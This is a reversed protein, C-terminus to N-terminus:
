EIYYQKPAEGKAEIVVPRLLLHTEYDIKVLEINFLWRDGFDFLYKMREGQFLKLDSIRVDEAFPGDHYLSDKCYIIEGINIERGFYFVYLHDNDFDFAEQIALHLDSLRHDYYISIKRWIKNSLSVKFTYTGKRDIKEFFNVTNKVLGEKFIGKFIEFTEGKTNLIYKKNQNFTILHFENYNLYEIANTFLYGCTRIGFDTPVYSEIYDEFKYKVNPIITFDLLGFFKLHYFIDYAFNFMNKTEQNKTKLSGNGEHQSAIEFLIETFCIFDFSHLKVKFDYKTWYTELLFIYKEYENLNRYIDLNQTKILSLKRNEDYAQIYLKGLISLSFMLDIFKYKNQDKYIAADENKNILLNNLNFCDKRGLVEYTATLIIKESEIFEIFKDFDKITNEINKDM